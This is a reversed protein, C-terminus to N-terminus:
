SKYVRQTAVCYVVGGVCEQEMHVSGEVSILTIFPGEAASVLFITSYTTNAVNYECLIHPRFRWRAAETVAPLEIKAVRRCIIELPTVACLLEAMPRSM